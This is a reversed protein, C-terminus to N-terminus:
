RQVVPPSGMEFVVNVVDARMWSRTLEIPRDHDHRDHNVGELRWTPPRGTLELHQAVEAPPIELSARSWRRGPEIGYEERLLAYLSTHSRVHRIICPVREAVLHAISWSAVVDGVLVRREVLVIPTRAPIGLLEAVHASSLTRRVSLVEIAPHVGASRMTATVSPPLDPSVVYDIRTSAFTGAGRVRRVQFRRELEQLAARATQRNVGHTAALEHESAVRMGVSAALGNAVGDALQLYTPGAV